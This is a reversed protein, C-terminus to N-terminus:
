FRLLAGIGEVPELDQHHRIALARGGHALTQHVALDLGAEDEEMATGDLPCEGAKASVRGCRPCRWGTRQAGDQYLLLDVRADSAADLTENWGASARGDRGSEERWREIAEQEEREVATALVPKVAALIEAPGAHAEVNTWGAVLGQAENSLAREFDTRLEETSVIVIRRALGRRVRRDLEEAVDKLHGHVRNEINREYRAQSWGGQQHQGHQEESRDVVGELRGGRLRYVSGQERSVHAVLAGAGDLLPVLPALYFQPGVRVVDDVPDSLAFTFWADDLGACFVAVGQAGERDFEQEFFRQIRAFDSKLAERAEHSLKDHEAAAAKSGDDLTSNVRTQLDGATATESPDLGIFTSIACGREARFGALERLHDWTLQTAM